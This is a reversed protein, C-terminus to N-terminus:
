LKEEKINNDDQETIEEVIQITEKVFDMSNNLSVDNELPLPSAKAFKVLDALLLTQHLKSVAEHNANTHKLGDLIEETTMEVAQIGFRGEIYVRVIDTMETYYGKTKGAQWLKKQKLIELGSMAVVHPPLVPKPKITFIAEKKKLKRIVYTIILIALIAAFGYLLWPLIERFTLPAGLPPKIAMIAKTTDVEMTHVHLYIPLTSFEIFSTDDIPQYAFKLGPIHYFGSDFSTITLTQLMDVINAEENIMTDVQSRAIIEINNVLTDEYFPWLVRSDLPMSFHINLNIQDGILIDTTDFEASATVEQSQVNVQLFVLIFSLIFVIRGMM